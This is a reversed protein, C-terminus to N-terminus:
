RELIVFMSSVGHAQYGTGIEVSKRTSYQKFFHPQNRFVLEDV